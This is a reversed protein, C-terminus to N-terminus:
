YTAQAPILFMNRGEADLVLAASEGVVEIRRCISELTVVTGRRDEPHQM